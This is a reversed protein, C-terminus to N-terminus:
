QQRTVVRREEKRTVHMVHAWQSQETAVNAPSQEMTANSVTSNQRRNSGVTIRQNVTWQVNGNGNTRQPTEQQVPAPAPYSALTRFYM